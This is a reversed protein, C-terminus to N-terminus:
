RIDGSQRLHDVPVPASQHHVSGMPGVQREQPHVVEGPRIQGDDGGVLGEGGPSGYAWWSRRRAPLM